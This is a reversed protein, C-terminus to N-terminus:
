AAEKVGKHGDGDFTWKYLHHSPEHFLVIGEPRDFGPVAVSGESLAIQAELLVAMVDTGKALVPVVHCCNPRSEPEAWRFSNFLYFRKEKLGYGRQIGQGMWEGYHYGPGLKLLDEYNAKVWRAMGANDQEPTIIRNRSQVTITVGDDAIAICGNSGDIKEGAVWQRNIRYLKPFEKFELM